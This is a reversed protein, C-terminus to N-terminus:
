GLAAPIVAHVCVGFFFFVQVHPPRINTKRNALYIILRTQTIFCFDFLTFSLSVFVSAVDPVCFVSQEEDANCVCVLLVELM